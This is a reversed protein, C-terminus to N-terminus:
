GVGQSHYDASSLYELVEAADAWVPRMFQDKLAQRVANKQDRNLSGPGAIKGVISDDGQDLATLAWRTVLQYSTLGVLRKGEAAMVFKLEVLKFDGESPLSERGRKASVFGAGTKFMWGRGDNEWTAVVRTKDCILYHSERNLREPLPVSPLRQETAAHIRQGSTTKSFHDTDGMADAVIHVPQTCKPCNRTQGVLEDKANLKSGCSPCVIRVM